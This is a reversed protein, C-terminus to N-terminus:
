AISLKIKEFTEKQLSRKLFTFMKRGKRIMKQENM